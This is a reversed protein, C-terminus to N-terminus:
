KSLAERVQAVFHLVADQTGEDDSIGLNLVPANSDLEALAARVKDETTQALASELDSLPDASNDSWVKANNAM